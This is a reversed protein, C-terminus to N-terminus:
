FFDDGGWLCEVAFGADGRCGGVQTEGTCFSWGCDCCGPVFSFSTGEDDTTEGFTAVIFGEFTLNPNEFNPNENEFGLTAEGLCTFDDMGDANPLGMAADM